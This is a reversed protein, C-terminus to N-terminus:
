IVATENNECNWETQSVEKELQSCRREADGNNKVQRCIVKEKLKM